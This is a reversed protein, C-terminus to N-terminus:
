CRARARGTWWARGRRRRSGRRSRPAAPPRAGAAPSSGQPRPARGPACTPSPTITCARVRARVCARMCAHFPSTDVAHGYGGCMVWAHRLPTFLWNKTLTPSSAQQRSYFPLEAARMRQVEPRSCVRGVHQQWVQVGSARVIRQLGVVWEGDGVVVLARQLVVVHTSVPRARLQPYPFHLPYSTPSIPCLPCGRWNANRGIGM